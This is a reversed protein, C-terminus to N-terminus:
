RKANRPRAGIPPSRAPHSASTPPVDSANATAPTVESTVIPTALVQRARLASGASELAYGPDGHLDVACGVLAEFPKGAVGELRVVDLLVPEPHVVDVLAVAVRNQQQM